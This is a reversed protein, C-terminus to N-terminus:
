LPLFKLPSRQCSSSFGFRTAQMHVSSSPRSEALLLNHKKEKQEKLFHSQNVVVGMVDSVVAGVQGLRM